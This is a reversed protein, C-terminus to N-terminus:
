AGDSPSSRAADVPFYEAWPIDSQVAEAATPPFQRWRVVLREPPQRKNRSGAICCRAGSCRIGGRTRGSATCRGSIARRCADRNPSGPTSRKGATLSTTTSAKTCLCRLRVRRSRVRSWATRLCWPVTCQFRWRLTSCNRSGVGTIRSSLDQPALGQATLVTLLEHVAPGFSAMMQHRPIRLPIAATAYSESRQIIPEDPM